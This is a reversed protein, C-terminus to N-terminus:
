MIQIPEHIPEHIVIVDNEVVLATLFTLYLALHRRLKTIIIVEMMDLVSETITEEASTNLVEEFARWEEEIDETEFIQLNEFRNSVKLKFKQRVKMDERLKRLQYKAQQKAVQLKRMRIRIKAMVLTHDSNIDAGPYKKNGM